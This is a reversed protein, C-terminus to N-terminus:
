QAPASTIQPQVVPAATRVPSIVAANPAVTPAIGSVDLPEVPTAELQEATTKPVAKQCNELAQQSQYRLAAGSSPANGSSAQPTNCDCIFDSLVDKAVELAPLIRTVFGSVDKYTGELNTLDVRITQQPHKDIIELFSIQDDEISDLVAKKLSNLRLETKGETSSIAQNLKFLLFEGNSGEIFTKMFKPVKIRESLITRLVEPIEKDTDLLQQIPTPLTGTETFTDLEQRTVTM